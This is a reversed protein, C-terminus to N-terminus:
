CSWAWSDETKRWRPLGSLRAAEGAMETGSSPWSDPRRATVVVVVAVAAAAAEASCVPALEDADAETSCVGPEETDGGTM